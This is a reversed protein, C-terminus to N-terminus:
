PQKASLITRTTAAGCKMEKEHIRTPGWQGKLVPKGELAEERCM